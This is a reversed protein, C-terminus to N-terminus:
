VTFFSSMQHRFPPLLFCEEPLSVLEGFQRRWGIRRWRSSASPLLELPSTRRAFMRNSNRCASHRYRGSSSKPTRPATQALRHGDWADIKGTPQKDPPNILFVGAFEAFGLRFLHHPQDM